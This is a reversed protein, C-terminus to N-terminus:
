SRTQGMCNSTFAVITPCFSPTTASISPQKSTISTLTQGIFSSRKERTPFPTSAKRTDVYHLSTATVTIFNSDGM